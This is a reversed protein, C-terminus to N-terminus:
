IGKIKTSLAELAHSYGRWGMGSAYVTASAAFIDQRTRGDMAGFPSIHVVGIPLGTDNLADLLSYGYPTLGAPNVVILDLGDQREHLWDILSGEHNSQFHEAAIGLRAATDDIDREIDALTTHGYKDPRRKGLRNLNPGHLVAARMM